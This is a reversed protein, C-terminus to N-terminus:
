NGFSFDVDQLNDFAFMVASITQRLCTEYYIPDHCTREELVIRRIVDDAEDIGPFEDRLYGGKHTHSASNIVHIGPLAEKLRKLFDPGCGLTDMGILVAKERGDSLAMARVKLPDCIKKNLVKRFGGPVEASYHPTIDCEYFGAQIM